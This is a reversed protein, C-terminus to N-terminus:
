KASFQLEGLYYRSAKDGGEPENDVQGFLRAAEELHHHEKAEIAQNLLTVWVLDEAAAADRAEFIEIKETKGRVNPEGLIRWVIDERNAM